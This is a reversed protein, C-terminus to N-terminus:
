FVLIDRHGLVIFDVVNPYFPGIHGILDVRGDEAEVGCPKQSSTVHVMRAAGRGTKLGSQFFRARRAEM